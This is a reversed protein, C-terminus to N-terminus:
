SLLYNSHVLGRKNVQYIYTYPASASLHTKICHLYNQFIHLYTLLSSMNKKKKLNLSHPFVEAKNEKDKRYLKRM